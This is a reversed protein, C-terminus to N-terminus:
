LPFCPTQPDFVREGAGSDARHLEYKSCESQLAKELSGVFYLFRSVVDQSKLTFCM